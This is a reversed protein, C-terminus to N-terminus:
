NKESCDSKGEGCYLKERGFDENSDEDKQRQRLGNHLQDKKHMQAFFLLGAPHCENKTKHNEDYDDDDKAGKPYDAVKVV